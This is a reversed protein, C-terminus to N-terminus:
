TVKKFYVKPVPIHDGTEELFIPSMGESQARNAAPWISAPLNLDM